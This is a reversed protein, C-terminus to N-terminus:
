FFFKHAFSRAHTRVLVIVNATALGVMINHPHMFGDGTSSTVESSDQIGNSKPWDEPVICTQHTFVDGDVCGGGAGGFPLTMEGTGEGM